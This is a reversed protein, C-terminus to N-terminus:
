KKQCITDLENLDSKKCYFIQSKTNTFTEIENKIPINNDFMLSKFIILDEIKIYFRFSEGEIFM